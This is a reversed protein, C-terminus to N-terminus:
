HSLLWPNVSEEKSDNEKSPEAVFICVNLLNDLSPEVQTKLTQAFSLKINQDMIIVHNLISIYVTSYSLILVSLPMLSIEKLCSNHNLFSAYSNLISTSIWINSILHILLNFPNSCDWRSIYSFKQLSHNLHIWLSPYVLSHSILTRM